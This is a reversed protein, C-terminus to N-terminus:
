KNNGELLKKLLDKVHIYPARKFYAIIAETVRDNTDRLADDDSVYLDLGVLRTNAILFLRAVDGWTPLKNCVSCQESLTITVTAGVYDGICIHDVCLKTPTDTPINNNNM